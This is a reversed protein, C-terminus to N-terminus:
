TSGRVPGQRHKVGRSRTWSEGGWPSAGASVKFRSWFSRPSYKLPIQHWHVALRGALDPRIQASAPARNM